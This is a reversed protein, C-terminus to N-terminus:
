NRQNGWPADIGVTGRDVIRSSGGAGGTMGPVNKAQGMNPPPTPVLGEKPSKQTTSNPTYYEVNRVQPNKAGWPDDKSVTEYRGPLLSSGGAGGNIPGGRILNVDGNYETLQRSGGSPATNRSPGGYPNDIDIREYAGPLKSSGNVGGNSPGGGENAYPTTSRQGAGAGGTQQQRYVQHGGSADSVNVRGYQGPLNSSGQTGGNQPSSSLSTTSARPQQQPTVFANTAGLALALVLATVKM